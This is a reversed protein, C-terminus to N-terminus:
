RVRFQDEKLDWHVGLVREAVPGDLSRLKALKSRNEEPVSDLVNECNSTWKTRNFGCESLASRLNGMLNIAEEETAVSVFCDDVYFGRCITEAVEPPHDHHFWTAAQKLCFSACSPSSTAGFLHVTMRFAEPDKNLDGNPWWFFQLSNRDKPKVKVQHFMQEIDAALAVPEMRFRTLVGVLSNLLDPGQSLADNLSTGFFRAACDFVIRLKDPKRPNFVPFHPLYWDRSLKDVEAKVEEVKEAYGKGIYGQMVETYKRHLKEDKKLRKKLSVMRSKAMEMDNPLQIDEQKWLLPLQFHGDVLEISNKM